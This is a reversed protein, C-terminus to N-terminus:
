RYIRLAVAGDQRGRVQIRLPQVLLAEMARKDSEKKDRRRDEATRRKGAGMAKATSDIWMWKVEHLSNSQKGSLGHRTEHKGTEHKGEKCARAKGTNEHEHESHKEWGERRM